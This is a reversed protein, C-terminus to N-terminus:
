SGSGAFRLLCRDAIDYMYGKLYASLDKGADGYTVSVFEMRDLCLAHFQAGNLQLQGAVQRARLSVIEAQVCRQLREADDDQMYRSTRSVMAYNRRMDIALRVLDDPLGADEMKAALKGGAAAGELTGSTRREWLM